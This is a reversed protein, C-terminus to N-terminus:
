IIQDNHRYRRKNQDEGSRKSKSRYWNKRAKNESIKHKDEQEEYQEENDDIKNNIFNEEVEYSKEDVTVQRNLKNNFAKKIARFLIVVLIAPVFAIAAISIFLIISNAMTTRYTSTYEELTQNPKLVIIEGNKILVRRDSINSKSRLIKLAEESSRVRQSYRFDPHNVACYDVLYIKIPVTKYGKHKYIYDSFTRDVKVDKTGDKSYAKCPKFTHVGVDSYNSSLSSNWLTYMAFIFSLAFGVGCFSFIIKLALKNGSGMGM